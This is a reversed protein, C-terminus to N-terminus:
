FSSTTCLLAVIAVNDLAAKSAMSEHVRLVWDATARAIRDAVQSPSLGQNEANELIMARCKPVLDRCLAAAVADRPLGGVNWLGDSALLVFEGPYLAEAKVSPMPTLGSSSAIAPHGLCRSPMLMSQEKGDGHAFVFYPAQPHVRTGYKALRRVEFANEVGHNETLWSYRVGKEDVTFRCASTDGANSALVCARRGSEVSVTCTTLTCGFDVKIASGNRYVYADELKKVVVASKVRASEVSLDEEGFEGDSMGWNAGTKTHRWDWFPGDLSQEGSNTAWAAMIRDNCHLFTESCAQVLYRTIEKRKREDLDGWLCEWLLTLADQGGKKLNWRGNKDMAVDPSFLSIMKNAAVTAALRASEYGGVYWQNGLCPSSGHGDAIAATITATWLHSGPGEVTAAMRRAHFKDSTSGENRRLSETREFLSDTADNAVVKAYDEMRYVTKDSGGRAPGGRTSTSSTEYEGKTMANTGAYIKLPHASLNKLHPVDKATPREQAYKNGYIYLPQSAGVRVVTTVKSPGAPKM